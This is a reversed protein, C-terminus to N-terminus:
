KKRSAMFTFPIALPGAIALVVNWCLSIKIGRQKLVIYCILAGVIWVIVPTYDVM